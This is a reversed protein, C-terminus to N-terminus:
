KVDGEDVDRRRENELDNECGDDERLFVDDDPGPGARPFGSRFGDVDSAALGVSLLATRVATAADSASVGRSRLEASDLILLAGRVPVCSESRFAEPSPCSSPSVRIPSRRLSDLPLGAAKAGSIERLRDLHGAGYRAGRGAGFPPALLGTQVYFRITRRSTGSLSSLREVDM